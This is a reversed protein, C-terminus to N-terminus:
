VKASKTKGTDWHTKREDLFEINGAFSSARLKITIGYHGQIVVLSSGAQYDVSGIEYFVVDETVKIDNSAVKELSWRVKTWSNKPGPSAGNPVDRSPIWCDM